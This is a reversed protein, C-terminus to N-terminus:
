RFLEKWWNEEAHLAQRWCFKRRKKHQDGFYFKIIKELVEKKDYESPLNSLKNAMREAMANEQSTAM